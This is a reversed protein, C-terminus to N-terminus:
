YLELVVAFTRHSYVTIETFSIFPVSVEILIQEQEPTMSSLPYYIGELEGQLGSLAEVLIREVHRREARCIAPPLCFGRVNRGTRVRCSRVYREDLEGGVLQLNFFVIVITIEISCSSCPSDSYPQTNKPTVHAM